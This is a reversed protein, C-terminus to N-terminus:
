DSGQKWRLLASRTPDPQHSHKPEKLVSLPDEATTILRATCNLKKSGRMTCQWYYRYKGDSLEKKRDHTYLFGNLGIQEGGKERQTSPYRWGKAPQTHLEPRPSTYYRFGISHKAPYPYSPEVWLQLCWSLKTYSLSRSPRWLYIHNWKIWTSGSIRYSKSGPISCQRRLYEYYGIHLLTSNLM